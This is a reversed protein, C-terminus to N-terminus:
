WPAGETTPGFGRDIIKNYDPYIPVPNNVDSNSLWDLTYKADNGAYASATIETSLQYYHGPITHITSKM